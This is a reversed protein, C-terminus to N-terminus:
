CMQLGFPKLREGRKRGAAQQVAGPVPSGRVLRRPPPGPGALVARLCVDSFCLVPHFSLLLMVNINNIDFETAQTSFLHIEM